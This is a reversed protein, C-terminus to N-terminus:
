YLNFNYEIQIYQSVARGNKMAPSFRIRKAAEMARETIGHPLGSIVRLDTVQGDARFVGRLVVTGSVQNSRAEEPYQPEPRSLIRAKQSVESPKFMRNYYIPSKDEGIPVAETDGAEYSLKAYVRGTLLDYFWVEM